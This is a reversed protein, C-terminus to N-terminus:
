TEIQRVVCVNAVQIDVIRYTACRDCFFIHVHIEFLGEFMSMRFSLTHMMFDCEFTLVNYTRTAQVCYAKLCLCTLHRHISEQNCKVCQLNMHSSTDGFVCFVYVHSFVINADHIRM